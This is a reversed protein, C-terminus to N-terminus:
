EEIFCEGRYLGATSQSILLLSSKFYGEFAESSQVCADLQSSVEDPLVFWLDTFCKNIYLERVFLGIFFYVSLVGSLILIHGRSFIQCMRLVCLTDTNTSWMACEEENIANTITGPCHTMTLLGTGDAIHHALHSLRRLPPPLFRARSRQCPRHRLPGRRARWRGAPPSSPEAM